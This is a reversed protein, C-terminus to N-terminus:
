DRFSKWAEKTNEATSIRGIWEGGILYALVGILGIAFGLSAVIFRKPGIRKDPVVAVDIVQIVAGEKAEDIRALEYQKLMLDFITENYKVDRLLSLGRFGETKNSNKSKESHKAGVDGELKALQNKLSSVEQRFRVIEPNHDTAYGQMSAIQVEKLTIQGRIMASAEIMAKGQGDVIAIGGDTLAERAAIQAKTLSEKTENLQKEFFLRRQAAETIALGNSLKMLEAVYANAMDAALNSDEAEVEISVIGDRGSSFFSDSALIKRADTMTSVDYKKLLDFRTILQDAIKRSKLMGVYLDSMSKLGIAGGVNVSSSGAIQALMAAPSTQSQQPPLIRSAALYNNPIAFSFCFFVAAVAMPVFILKRKNKKLLTAIELISNVAQDNKQFGTNRDVDINM